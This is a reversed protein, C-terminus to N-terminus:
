PVFNFFLFWAIIGTVIGPIYGYVKRYGATEKVAQAGVAFVWLKAFLVLGEGWTGNLAPVGIPGAFFLIGPAYAIGISRFYDIISGTGKFAWKTSLWAIISWINWSLIIAGMRTVIAFREEGMFSLVEPTTADFPQNNLGFGFGIGTICVLIFALLLVKPQKNISKYISGDLFATRLVISTINLQEQPEKDRNNRKSRKM